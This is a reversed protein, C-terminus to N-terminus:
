PQRGVPLTGGLTGGLTRPDFAFVSPLEHGSSVRTSQAFMDQLVDRHPSDRRVYVFVWWDDGWADGLKYCAGFECHDRAYKMERWFMEAVLEGNWHEFLASGRGYLTTQVNASMFNADDARHEIGPTAPPLISFVVDPEEGGLYAWVEDLTREDRGSMFDNNLGIWDIARFGSYWPIMGAASLLITADQGLGTSRLDLGLRALANSQPADVALWTTASSRAHLAWNLLTPRQGAVITPLVLGATMVAAFRTRSLGYLHTLALALAGFLPVLMPFEYRFGGAMEHIAKSYAAVILAGPLLLWAARKRARGDVGIAVATAVTLALLPVYRVVLFRWTVEFGPLPHGASGFIGNHAKVYYPNSFIDGYYVQRWAVLGVVLAVYPVAVPLLGRLEDVLGRVGGGLSRAMAIAGLYGIALLGGEPRTLMLLALLAASALGGVLGLRRERGVMWAAWAVALGHMATFLVTEMGSGLHVGTEEILGLAFVAALGCLVGVAPPARTLRAAVFGFALGMLLLLVVGLARTVRLPDLGAAHAAAAAFVAVSSSAGASPAADSANYRLGHGEALNRGYVYTIFADDFASDRMVNTRCALFWGLFLLALAALVIQAGSSRSETPLPM